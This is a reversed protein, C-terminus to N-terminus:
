LNDIIKCITNKGGEKKELIIGKFRDIIRYIIETSKMLKIVTEKSYKNNYENEIEDLRMIKEPFGHHKIWFLIYDYGFLLIRWLINELFIYFSDSTDGKFCFMIISDYSIAKDKRTGYNWYRMLERPIIIMGSFHSSKIINDISDIMVEKEKPKLRSHTYCDHKKLYRKGYFHFLGGDKCPFLLSSKVLPANLVVESSLHLSARDYPPNAIFYHDKNKNLIDSTFPGIAGFKIDEQFISCFKPLTHNIPSAFCEVTKKFYTGLYEYVPPPLSLYASSLQITNNLNYNKEASGYRIILSIIDNKNVKSYQEKLIKMGDCPVLSILKNKDKKELKTFKIIDYIKKATKDEDQYKSWYNISKLTKYIMDYDHILPFNKDKNNYGNIFLTNIYGFFFSEGWTSHTSSIQDEELTKAIKQMKIYLTCAEDISGKGGGIINPNVYHMKLLFCIFFMNIIFLILIIISICQEKM